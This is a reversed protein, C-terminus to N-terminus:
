RSADNRFQLVQVDGWVNRMVNEVIPTFSTTIVFPFKKTKLLKVILDSPTLKMQNLVQDIINYINDKYRRVNKDYILQSYTKPTNELKFNKSLWGILHKDVDAEGKLQFDPWIVPIVDGAMIKNVLEEWRANEGTLDIVIEDININLGIQETISM